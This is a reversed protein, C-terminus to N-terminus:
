CWCSDVVAVQSVVLTPYAERAADAAEQASSVWYSVTRVPIYGSSDSLFVLYARCSMLSVEFILILGNCHRYGHRSTVALRSM